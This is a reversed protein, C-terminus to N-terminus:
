KPLHQALDQEVLIKWNVLVLVGLQGNVILSPDSTNSAKAVQLHSPILVHRSRIPKEKM